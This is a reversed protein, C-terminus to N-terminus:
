KLKSAKDKEWVRQLEYPDEKSVFWYTDDNLIERHMRNIRDIKSGYGMDWTYASVVSLAGLPVLLLPSKTRLFGMGVMSASGAMWWFRERAAAMQQAMMLRRQREMLAMQNERMTEQMSAGAGM